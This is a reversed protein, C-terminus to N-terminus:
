PQILDVSRRLRSNVHHSRLLLLSVTCLILESVAEAAWIGNLGFLTSALLLVPIKVLLM